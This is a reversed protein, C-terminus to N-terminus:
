PLRENTRKEIENNLASKLPIISALARATEEGNELHRPRVPHVQLNGGHAERM